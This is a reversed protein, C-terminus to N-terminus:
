STGTKAERERLLAEFRERDVTVFIAEAEATLRDGAHCTGSTFIKRGEVRDVWARFHLEENLPTPTRYRVTLTGTFGAQGSLSQAMGLVEDFAAAVFGGHLNGPPGEYAAGFVARGEVHSGSEDTVIDLSVPAALPNALGIIPSRDFFGGPMDRDSPAMISEGSVAVESVEYWSRKKPFMEELRDAFAAAADAARALEDAPADVDALREIIRRLEAALRRAEVIRDPSEM